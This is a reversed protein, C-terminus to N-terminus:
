GAPPPSGSIRGWSRVGSMTARATLAADRPHAAGCVGPRGELGGDAGVRGQPPQEPELGVPRSPQGELGAAEGQVQGLLGPGGGAEGPGDVKGAGRAQLGGPLGEEGALGHVGGLAPSDQVHGQPRRACPVPAGRTLGHRLANRGPKRPHEGEGAVDASRAIDLSDQVNADSSGVEAGAQDPLGQGGERRLDVQAEGCVDIRGLDGGGEGPQVGGPGQHHNDGLGEGGLLGQEVGPDGPGPQLLRGAGRVPEDRHRGRRLGGLGEPDVRGADEGEGVPDAAPEGQPRGHAQGAGDGQSGLDELPKQAARRLHVRVEEPGRRLVVQRHDQGEGM